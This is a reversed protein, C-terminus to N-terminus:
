ANNREKQHIHVMTIFKFRFKVGIHYASLLFRNPKLFWQDRKLVCLSTKHFATEERLLQVDLVYHM